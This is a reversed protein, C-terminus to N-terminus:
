LVQGEMEEINNAFSINSIDWYLNICNAKVIGKATEKERGTIKNGYFWVKMNVKNEYRKQHHMEGNNIKFFPLIYSISRDVVNKVFPSFGGYVCESIIIVEDCKSLYEGMDGYKDRIVCAGPTKLWCGFCGICNHISGDDSIVSTDELGNPFLKEFEESKLDHIILRM